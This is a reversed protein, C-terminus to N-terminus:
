RRCQRCFDCPFCICFRKCIYTFTVPKIWVYLEDIFFTQHRSGTVCCKGRLGRQITRHHYLNQVAIFALRNNRSFIRKGIDCLACPIIISHLPRTGVAHSGAVALSVKVRLFLDATLFKCLEQIGIGSFRCNGTRQPFERVSSIGGAPRFICQEPRSLVTDQAACLSRIAHHEVRLTRCGTCLSSGHELAKDTAINRYRKFGVATASHAAHLHLAARCDASRLVGRAAAPNQQAPVIVLFAATRKQKVFLRNFLIDRQIRVPYFIIRVARCSRICRSLNDNSILVTVIRIGYCSIDGQRCRNLLCITNHNRPAATRRIHDRRVARNDARVRLIHLNCEGRRRLLAALLLSNRKIQDNQMLICAVDLFNWVMRNDINLAHVVALRIDNVIIILCLNNRNFSIEGIECYVIHIIRQIGDLAHVANESQGIGALLHLRKGNGSIFIARFISEILYILAIGDIAQAHRDRCIFGTHGIRQARADACGRLQRINRQRRLDCLLLGFGGRYLLIAAVARRIGACGLLYNIRQTCM